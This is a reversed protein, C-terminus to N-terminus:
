LVGKGNFTASVSGTGSTRTYVLRIWHYGANKDLWTWNGPAGGAAQLSGTYDSWNVVNSAPDQTPITNEEVIDNSIQIKFDGVPVGTWVAQIAINSGLAINVGKSAVFSQALDAGTLIKYPFFRM